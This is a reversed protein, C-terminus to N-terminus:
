RAAALLDSISVNPTQPGNTQRATSQSIRAALSESVWFELGVIAALAASVVIVRIRVLCPAVPKTKM